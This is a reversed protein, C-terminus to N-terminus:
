ASALLGHEAAFDSVAASVLDPLEEQPCHGCGDLECLRVRPSEGRAGGLAALLGRSNSVPVVRDQKGHLILIPLGSERLARVVEVDTEPTTPEDTAAAGALRRRARARVEAKVAAAQALCFRAVGGDAGRVQLSFLRLSARLAATLAPIPGPPRCPAM